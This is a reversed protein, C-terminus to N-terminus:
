WNLDEETFTPTEFTNSVAFGHEASFMETELTPAQYFRRNM